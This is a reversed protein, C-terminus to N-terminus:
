YPDSAFGPGRKPSPPPAKVGPTGKAAAAKPASTPSADVRAPTASAAGAGDAAGALAKACRFGITPARFTAAVTTRAAARVAAAVHSAWSGGRVVRQQSPAETATWEAVNGAVDLLGHATAPFQGVPATRAHGDTAPYLPEIPAYGRGLTATCEPGCANLLRESPAGEGWPFARGDGGRAALEWQEETPLAKSQAECYATAQHWDVCEIPHAGRGELGANCTAFSSIEFRPDSRETSAATCRGARVCAAYADVTVETADLCFSPVSARRPPADALDKAGLTFSAGEVFAMGRPCPGSPPEAPAAASPASAGPPRPADASARPATATVSAAETAARTDATSPTTPSPGGRTALALGLGVLVAGGAVAGGIRLARGPAAADRPAPAPAGTAAAGVFTQPAFATASPAGPRPPTAAPPAPEPTAGRPDFTRADFSTAAGAAPRAGAGPPRPDAPGPGGADAIGLARLAALLEGASAHREAPEIALAKACVAELGDSAAAGLARPTPRKPGLAELTLAGVSKGKFPPRGTLLFAVVLGLAHVDTRPGTAGLADPNFQEPAGFAPSFAAFTSTAGTSARTEEDGDHMVKAIGFDLVRLRPKGGGGATVFLNEPKIDRHAVVQGAAGEHARAVAELAPELLRIADGEGLPGHAAVYADLPQGELWELALYPVSQGGLNVVGVDEVEVIAAHARALKRVLQGEAVFRRVFADRTAAVFHAPVKLLKIARPEQFTTHTARYVVGFGGEGVCAEVRYRNELVHGVLGFPDSV